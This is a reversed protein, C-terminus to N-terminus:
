EGQEKMLLDSHLNSLEAEKEKLKQEIAQYDAAKLKLERCSNQLAEVDIELESVRSQILDREEVAKDYAARSETLKKQLDEITAAAVNSTSEFLETLTQVKGTVLLLNEAVKEYQNDEFIQPQEVDNSDLETAELNMNRSLRELEPISSLELLNNKVEFQLKSTANSCASLLVRCDKELVAITKEQEEKHMEVSNIKQKMSEMRESIITVADVTARLKGLLAEIFEGISASFGEFNDMLVANRSQFGEVTKKFYLSINNVDAANVKDSIMERNGINGLGDPFLKAHLDEQLSSFAGNSSLWM